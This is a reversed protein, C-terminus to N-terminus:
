ISNRVSFQSSRKLPYECFITPSEILNAQTSRLQRITFPSPRHRILNSVSSTGRKCAICKKLSCRAHNVHYINIPRYFSSRKVCSFSVVCVISKFQSLQARCPLKNRRSSIRKVAARSLGKKILAFILQM